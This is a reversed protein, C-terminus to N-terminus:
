FFYRCFLWLIITHQYFHYTQGSSTIDDNIIPTGQNNIYEIQRIHFYSDTTYEEQLYPIRIILHFVIIIVLIGIIKKDM